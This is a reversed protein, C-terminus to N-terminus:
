PNSLEAGYQTDRWKLKGTYCMRLAFVSIALLMVASAHFLWAYRKQNGSLRYITALYLTM